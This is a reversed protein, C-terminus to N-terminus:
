DKHEAPYTVQGATIKGWLTLTHPRDHCLVKPLFDEVIKLRQKRLDREDTFQESRESRLPIWRGTDLPYSRPASNQRTM